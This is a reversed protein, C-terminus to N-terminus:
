AMHRGRQSHATGDFDKRHITSVETQSGTWPMDHGNVQTIGWCWKGPQRGHVLSDELLDVLTNRMNRLTGPLSGRASGRPSGSRGDVFM